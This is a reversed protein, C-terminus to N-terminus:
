RRSCALIVVMSGRIMALGMYRVWNANVAKIQCVWRGCCATAYYLRSRQHGRIGQFIVKVQMMVFKAILCVVGWGNINLTCLKPNDRRQCHLLPVRTSGDESPIHIHHQKLLQLQEVDKNLYQQLWWRGDEQWSAMDHPSTNDSAGATECRVSRYTPCDSLVLSETYEPWAAEAEAKKCELSTTDAYVERSVHAKYRLYEDIVEGHQERMTRLIESLPKHQHLCQVFLQSHGHLSGTSKQAEFSTFGAEIRGVIGGEAKANCGFIDQCPLGAERRNCDPCDMCVRMGFLYEYALFVLIKFGDASALADRALIRRRRDRSPLGQLLDEVPVGFLVDRESHPSLSPQNADVSYVSERDATALLIPDTRRTRSLRVMLLNHSEDPSFTVFIPVGYTIRLAQAQFRMLRRAEQTGSIKQCIHEMNQLLKRAAQSLDPIFRLKTTDGRVARLAGSEDRYSGYLAKCLSIAGAEIDAADMFGGHEAKGRNYAFMTRSLNVVSRFLFNWSVFGFHWDRALQAEVRRSMGRVWSGIDVWPADDQRRHRPISSWKELDPMGICYKFLFAFAIGFYWPVFQDLLVNGTVVKFKDANGPSGGVTANGADPGSQGSLNRLASVRQANIDGEAECSQEFVVGNPQFQSMQEPIGRVDTRGSTPTASKQVMVKDLDTDHGLVRVLEPPVGHEPLGNAKLKVKQMDISKYAKHGRMKANEILMVVVHRRVVAQHIFASMSKPSDEECTKLIISVLDRLDDGTRPLDVGATAGDQPSSFQLEQLLALWPLPFSTANGRAGVRHRHMHAHEDLPKEYRQKAELTFCIMATVCVSACLMEVVTVNLEYLERPGYFVMLDNRLALQPLLGGSLAGSCDRCIPFRCQECCFRPGGVTCNSCVKDEPCCLVRVIGSSFRVDLTWDDFEEMRSRLSVNEDIEGYADLYADIGLLEEVQEKTLGLFTQCGGGSGFNSLLPKVWDIQQRRMFKAYPFRRACVLCVLMRLDPDQLARSYNYLCRRDISYSALPAGQRCKYSIALNYIGWVKEDDAYMRPLLAMALKFSQGHAIALHESLEGDTVGTWKCSSFACHKQPLQVGMTDDVGEACPRDGDGRDAPLTPSERLSAALHEIIVDFQSRPDPSQGVQMCEFSFYQLSCMEGSAKERHGKAVGGEGAHAVGDTADNDGGGVENQALQKAVGRRRKPPAPAEPQAIAFVTDYRFGTVGAGTSNFLEFVVADELAGDGLLSARGVTFGMEEALGDMFDLRSHVVLRIGRPWVQKLAGAEELLFGVVQEFHRDHELFAGAHEADSAVAWVGSAERLGPHYMDDEHAILYERCASCLVRRANVDTIFGEHVYGHHALLQLVADAFCDNYGHAVAMGITRGSATLADKAAADNQLVIPANAQANTFQFYCKRCAHTVLVFGEEGVSDRYM